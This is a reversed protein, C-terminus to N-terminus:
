DERDSETKKSNLFSDRMTQAMKESMSVVDRYAERCEECLLVTQPGVYIPDIVQYTGNVGCINYETSSHKRIRDATNIYRTEEGCRDCTFSVIVNYKAM